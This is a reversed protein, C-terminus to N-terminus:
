LATRLMMKTWGLASDCNPPTAQTRSENDQWLVCMYACTIYICCVSVVHFSLRSLNKKHPQNRECVRTKSEHGGEQIQISWDRGNWEPSSQSCQFLQFIVQLDHISFFFRTWYSWYYFFLIIYGVGSISKFKLCFPNLFMETLTAILERQTFLNNYFSM